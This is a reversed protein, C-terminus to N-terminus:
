AWGDLRCSGQCLPVARRHEGLVGAAPAAVLLDLVRRVELRQAGPLPAAALARRHAPEPPRRGRALRQAFLDGLAPAVDAGGDEPQLREDLAVAGLGDLGGGGLCEGAARGREAAHPQRDIPRAV